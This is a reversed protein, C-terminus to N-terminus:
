EMNPSYEVATEAEEVVEAETTAESKAEIEVKALQQASEGMIAEIDETFITEKKLLVDALAEIRERETTIIDRALAVAEDVIRRVEEDILEATRESFPKTFVDRNGTADYFSVNGVKPSMGYYAVMAYATKSTRELDNIAGTSTIDLLEQEAVRGAVLGALKHMFHEINHNVREEPLYWTAGLSRGRPIITIKLVPDCHQLRWMVTAHGAEHIATSRREQATMPMNRRELGGVIRDIAALFDEQTIAKKDHRAAILAAENCVNAIDAGAFGPTQKALFERDLKDDLKLKRLHVDFIEKREKVDPLGVEIQRDFRGARMLAKDLIDVRNTAALVIVGANTQFGDMETLLQNLTNEREDNGSFGSNKGRARGIADIEDIFVICPAVKKAQEFLDRVRSAGVGVFMEVFDSGSISLFPVNAEGAVAKALLTKGTGPPGALLAGKPIKAGLAKYKDARKLFDVIEMIEVKAEELGAVDKFTVREKNNKDSMQARAKGVNMIGGGAGGGASRRMIVFFFVLLIIFPLADLLYGMFGKESRGYKVVVSKAAPNQEQAVAEAKEIREAFYQVDGGTNYRIQVGTGPLLKFREDGALQERADRVLYVSAKEKDLVEIREVLGREVLEEVMNWDGDIPRQESSGLMSYGIIVIVVLAWFWMFNFRPQMVPKGKNVAM